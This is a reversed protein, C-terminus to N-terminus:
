APKAARPAGRPSLRPSPSSTGATVSANLAARAPSRSSAAMNMAKWSARRPAGGPSEDGARLRSAGGPSADGARLRLAGGPSADGARLRPAYGPSADSARLRTPPRPPTMSTASVIQPADRAETVKRRLAEEQQSADKEASQFGLRLEELQGGARAVERRLAQTAARRGACSAELEALRRQADDRAAGLAAARDDPSAASSGGADSCSAERATGPPRSSAREQAALGQMAALKAQKEEGEHEAELNDIKRKRADQEQQVRTLKESRRENEARLAEVEQKLEALEVTSLAPKGDQRTKHVRLAQLRERALKLKDRADELSELATQRQLGYEQAESQAVVREGELEQTELESRAELVAVDEQEQQLKTERAIPGGGADEGRTVSGGVTARQLQQQLEAYQAERLKTKERLQRIEANEEATPGDVPGGPQQHRPTAANDAALKAELLRQHLGQKNGNAEEILQALSLGSDEWNEVGTAALSQAQLKRQQEEQAQAQAMQQRAQALAGQLVFIRDDFNAQIKRQRDASQALSLQLREITQPWNREPEAAAVVGRDRRLKAAESIAQNNRHVKGRVEGLETLLHANETEIAQLRRMHHTVAIAKPSPPVGTRAQLAANQLELAIVQRRASPLTWDATTPGADVDRIHIRGREGVTMALCPLGGADGDAPDQCCQRAFEAALEEAPRDRCRMGPALIVRLAVPPRDHRIGRSRLGGNGGLPLCVETFLHSRGAAHEEPSEAWHLEVLVASGPGALQVPVVEDWPLERMVVASWMGADAAACRAFLSLPRGERGPPADLVQPQSLRVELVVGCRSGGDSLDSRSGGM